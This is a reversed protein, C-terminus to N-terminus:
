ANVKKRGARKRGPKATPRQAEEFAAVVDAPIRGREAISYGNAAAWTRIEQNRERQAPDASQAKTASTRIKRGGTRQGVSLYPALEQRFATANDDSLDIEYQVGDLAFPVTQTAETGDLDDLMEVHVQKAMAFTRRYTFIM